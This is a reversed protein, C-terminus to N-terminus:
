MTRNLNSTIDLYPGPGSLFSFDSGCSGLKSQSLFYLYRNDDCEAEADEKQFSENSSSATSISEVTKTSLETFSSKKNFLFLSYFCNKKVQLDKKYFM